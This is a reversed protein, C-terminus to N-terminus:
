LSLSVGHIETGVELEHDFFLGRINIEGAIRRHLDLDLAPLHRDALGLEGGVHHAFGGVADHVLFLRAGELDVVIAAIIRWRLSLSAECMRVMSSGMSYLWAFACDMM